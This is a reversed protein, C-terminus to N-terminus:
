KHGEKYVTPLRGEMYAQKLNMSHTGWKLNKYFNNKKNNDLHMVVPYNNPNPIFHMAVLRHLFYRNHYGGLNVRLYGCNNEQIRLFKKKKKNYVRGDNYLRLWPSGRISIHKRM